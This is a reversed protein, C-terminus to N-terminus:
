ADPPLRRKPVVLRALVVPPKLRRGIAGAGCTRSDLRGRHRPPHVARGRHGRSPCRQHARPVAVLDRHLGLLHPRRGAAPVAPARLHQDVRAAVTCAPQHAARRELRDRPRPCAHRGPRVPSPAPRRVSRRDARADRRRVLSRRCIRVACCSQRRARQPRARRPLPRRLQDRRRGARTRWFATEFVAVAKVVGGMWVATSEAVSRVASPLDPKFTIAEVALAPPLAVIIQGATTVGGASQVSVGHDDVVVRSVPDSLHLVRRCVAPWDCRWRSRERHPAAPTSTAPTASSAARAATTPKSCRM